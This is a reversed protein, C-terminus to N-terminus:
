GLHIVVDNGDFQIRNNGSNDKLYSVGVVNNGSVNLDGGVINLKNQPSATGIGVNGNDLTMIAVNDSGLQLTGAGVNIISADSGSSFRLNGNVDFYFREDGSVFGELLRANFSSGGELRMTKTTDNSYSHLKAGPGTTGIGVRGTANDVFLINNSITLNRNIILNEPFTYTGSEFTGSGIVAAGHGPDAPLAATLPLLLIILLFILLFLGKKCNQSIKDM